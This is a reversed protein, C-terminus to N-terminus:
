RPMEASQLLMLARQAKLVYAAKTFTRSELEASLERVHGSLKRLEIAAPNTSASALKPAPVEPGATFHGSMVNKVGHIEALTVPAEAAARLIQALKRLGAGAPTSAHARKEVQAEAPVARLLQDITDTVSPRYTM